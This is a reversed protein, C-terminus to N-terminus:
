QILRKDICADAFDLLNRYVGLRSSESSTKLENLTEHGHGTLVLAPRAGAARAARVDRAADGVMWVEKLPVKLDEAAKLLMGPSPKRCFCEQDPAHPCYYIQEIRIHHTKLIGLMHQHIDELQKITMIGKGIGAQNTIIALRYGAQNLRGMAAISGPLPMWQAPSTVYGDVNHNIVGDRDLFIVGM